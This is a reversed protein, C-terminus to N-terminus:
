DCIMVNFKNDEAQTFRSVSIFPLPYITEWSSIGYVGAKTFEPKWDTEFRAHDTNAEYTWSIPNTKSGRKITTEIIDQGDFRVVESYSSGEMDWRPTRVSNYVVVDSGVCTDELTISTVDTYFAYPLSHGIILYALGLLWSMYFSHRLIGIGKKTKINGGM